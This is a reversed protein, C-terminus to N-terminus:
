CNERNPDGIKICIRNPKFLTYFALVEKDMLLSENDLYKVRGKYLYGCQIALDIDDYISIRQRVPLHKILEILKM